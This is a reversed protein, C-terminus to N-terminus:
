HFTILSVSVDIKSPVALTPSRQKWMDTHQTARSLKHFTNFSRKERHNQIFDSLRLCPPSQTNSCLMARNLYPQSFRKMSRFLSLFFHICGHYKGSLFSLKRSSLQLFVNRNKTQCEDSQKANKKEGIKHTSWFLFLDHLYCMTHISLCGSRKLGKHNWKNMHYQIKNATQLVKPSPDLCLRPQMALVIHSELM